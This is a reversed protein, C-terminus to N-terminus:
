SGVRAVQWGAGARELSRGVTYRRHGDGVLAVLEAHRHGVTDSQLLVLRPARRRERAPVRPRTASLQRRLSPTAPRIQRARGRGYTYPSIAPSSPVRVGTAVDRASTAALL